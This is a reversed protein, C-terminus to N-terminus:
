DRNRSESTGASSIRRLMAPIEDTIANDVDQATDGIVALDLLGYWGVGSADILVINGEGTSAEFLRDGLADVLETFRIRRLAPMRYRYSAYPRRQWDGLLRNMLTMPISTGGWRGNCEIFETQCNDIGQGTLLLDFSCRGVYGLHQFVTALLQCHEAVDSEVATPLDIGRSGCFRTSPQEILQEFIGEIVPPGDDLAPLWLQVSPTCLVDSQWCSVLLRPPEHWSSLPLRERLFSRIGGVSLGRIEESRIVVNGEGGASEPLKVVLARSVRSMRDIITAVGALNYAVHTQPLYAGGFLESVLGSFWAKDNVRRCLGPPPAIVKVSRRCASHLLRAVAWVQSEGLYPHLYRLRGDRFLHIVRRRVNRDTWSAAVVRLPDRVPTAHLWEVQGLGLYSQCYAEFEPGPSTCTVVVDGQKARMRAREELIIDEPFHQIQTISSMDDLVLSGGAPLSSPCLYSVSEDAALVPDASQLREAVATAVRVQQASLSV